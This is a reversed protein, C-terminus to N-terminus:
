FFASHFTEQRFLKQPARQWYLRLTKIFRAPSGLAFKLLGFLFQLVRPPWLYATEAPFHQADPPLPEAPPHHISFCFVEAGQKRLENVERFVFTESLKPFLTVIHAIRPM